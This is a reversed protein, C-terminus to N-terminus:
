AEGLNIPTEPMKAKTWYGPELMVSFRVFGKIKLKKTDFDTESHVEPAVRIFATRGKAFLDLVCQAGQLADDKTEAKVHATCHMLGNMASQPSFLLVATWKDEAIQIEM